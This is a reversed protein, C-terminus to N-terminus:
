VPKTLLGQVTNETKQIIKNCYDTCSKCQKKAIALPSLFFTEAALWNQINIIDHWKGIAEQLEDFYMQEAKKMLQLQEKAPLWHYSYLLQKIMKRLEHWQEQEAGPMATVINDKLAFAYKTLAHPKYGNAMQLLEKIAAKITTRYKNHQQVFLTNFVPLQALSKSHKSLQHFKHQHLWADIVQMDRIAGGDRFVTRLEKKLNKIKKNQEAADFFNMAARLKKLSVRLQHLAEPDSASVYDDLRGLVQEEQNKIYARLLHM